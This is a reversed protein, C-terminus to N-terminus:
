KKENLKCNYENEIKKLMKFTSSNLPIGKKLRIKEFIIQPDNPMMVQKNKYKKQNRVKNTLEQMKTKFNNKSISGDLKILIYSQSINRKKEIPSTFMAPIQYSLNSGCYVATLIEVMSALGFGKYRGIPTLGAAKNPDYTIKGKKNVAFDGPIKKNSKKLEQLNNWSINTTAMDLCYPTNELRPAAFCIPNTGFLNTTGNYSSMLSDANTFGFCIYNLRAARLAMSAISGAHSSNKVSIFCIGQKDAIKSGIDISKFGAAHGFANDANLTVVSPYKKEITFNPNINKRKSKASNIYHDLLRIGHSDVGRLSAECLGQTVADYSFKNLGVKKLVNKTFKYLDRYDIYYNKM